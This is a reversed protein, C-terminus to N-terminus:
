VKVTEKSMLFWISEDNNFKFMIQLDGKKLVDERTIDNEIKPISLHLNEQKVSEVLVKANGIVQNAVETGMDQITEKDPEDEFLLASCVKKLLEESLVLTFIHNEKDKESKLEITSVYYEGKLLEAKSPQPKLEIQGVFLNRIARILIVKM